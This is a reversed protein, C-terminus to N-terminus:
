LSFYLPLYTHICIYTFRIHLYMYLYRLYVKRSQEIEEVYKLIFRLNPRNKQYSTGSKGGAIEVHTLLRAAPHAGPRPEM